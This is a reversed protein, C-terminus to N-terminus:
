PWSTPPPMQSVQELSLYFFFAAALWAVSAWIFSIAVQRGRSDHVSAAAIHYIEAGKLILYVCLIWIIIQIM